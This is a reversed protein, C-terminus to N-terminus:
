IAMQDSELSKHESTQASSIRERERGVIHDYQSVKSQKNSQKNAQRSTKQTKM